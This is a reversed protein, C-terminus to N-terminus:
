FVETNGLQELPFIHGLNYSTYPASVLLASCWPLEKSPTLREPTPPPLPFSPNPVVPFYNQWNRGPIPYCSPLAPFWGQPINCIDPWTERGESKTNLMPVLTLATEAEM